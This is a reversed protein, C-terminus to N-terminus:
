EISQQDNWKGFFFIKSNYIISATHMSRPPPEDGSTNSKVVCNMWKLTQTDCLYVTPDSLTGIQDVSGGFVVLNKGFLTSSHCYRATPRVDDNPALKTWRMSVLIPLFM